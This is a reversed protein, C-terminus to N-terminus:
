EAKVGVFRDGFFDGDNWRPSENDNAVILGLALAVGVFRQAGDENFPLNLDDTPGHYHDSLFANRLSAGDFNPDSSASGPKLNLGPVGQKVFSFQDSRILRVLEPRPDPTLVLERQEAARILARHLTSHEVGLGEIDSIPHGLFPMDININAVIKHIAVPSNNALYDSGRLGKEEGTVAAFIISRRPLPSLTALAGAVELVIAVGAANDYAGNHIEDGNEGPRVGLHDLHATFLVYEDRLKPDSGPLLALVNPSSALQQSSQRGLTASLQLEFGGTGGNTHYEFLEDLDRGVLGFLQEAGSNSLVANGTLEAFGDHAKNDSDLWRMDASKTFGLMRPWTLRKQDVPTRITVIGVAGLRAALAQKSAGSSYFAREDSSFRPPAGTFVVLIKGRVEVDAFDDHTYGPAQIGFGVFVLPATVLENKRGFGGYRIFDEGYDLLTESDGRHLVMSASEEVLRTELFNIHQFYTDDDGLPQLGIEAFQSAVYEAAKLHGATGAERGQMDDAALVEIHRRVKAGTLSQFASDYHQNSSTITVECGVLVSALLLNVAINRMQIAQEVSAHTNM